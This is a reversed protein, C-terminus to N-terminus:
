IEDFVDTIYLFVMLTAMNEREDKKEKKKKKKKEKDMRRGYFSNPSHLFFYFFVNM